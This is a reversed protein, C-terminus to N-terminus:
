VKELRPSRFRYSESSFVIEKAINTAEELDSSTERMIEALTVSSKRALLGYVVRFCAKVRSNENFVIYGANTRNGPFFTIGPFKAIKLLRNGATVRSCNTLSVVSVSDLRGKEKVANYIKKLNEDNSFFLQPVIYEIQESLHVLRAEIRALQEDEMQASNGM